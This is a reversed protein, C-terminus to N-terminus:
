LQYKQKAWDIFNFIQNIHDAASVVVKMKPFDSITQANDTYIQLLGWM